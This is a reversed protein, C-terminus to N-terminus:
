ILKAKEKRQLVGLDYLINFAENVYWDYDLDNPRVEPLIMCPKAGTTKPVMNGSGAYNICGEEGKAYYWRIAKGLYVGDKEGGGKVNRVSVFRRFDTCNQITEQVPIAKALYAQIADSLILTEPNKSLVSNLASGRESYCGKTKCEKNEKIAIYNNVDRCHMSRYRTEELAFGTTTEWSNCLNEFDNYRDKPVKTVVGDTNASVVRFGALEASEILMLLYLQGSICVQMLLDPAYLVKGWKDGLKGFTGNAPIKLGDAEKKRGAAKAAERRFVIKDGYVVLFSEGLHQPYIKQNLIIRPYFGTVDKDILDLSVTSYHSISKEQTHLGGLGMQYHCEGLDFHINEIESCIPQGAENITFIANRVTELVNQLLPTKFSIHSPVSYKFSSGSLWEKANPIKGLLKTLEYKIVAEAVQADSKSRIDQGLERGMEERLEISFALERFLLETNDLDNVCYDCVIAAEDESLYRMHEYPLDQMRECHLRGAYIKLSGTLPAVEILDIHNINLLRPNFKPQEDAIIENSKDKLMATSLGDLADAIMPLDYNKSNFGVIKFRYMAFSLSDRWVEYTVSNRNIFYGYPNIEFTLVTKAEIDKFAVLFYNPYCEVDHVLTRDGSSFLDSPSMFAYSKAPPIASHEFEVKIRGARRARKIRDPRSNDFYLTLKVV